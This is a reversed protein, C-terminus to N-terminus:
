PKSLRRYAHYHRLADTAQGLQECLGALNYHADAFDPDLEIATRYEDCAAGPGATDELALALNFHIVADGARRELASRYLKEAEAARGAEHVLRGLNVYADVLDQDHELARAYAGQAADPFEDELDLGRQFEVQALAAPASDGDASPRAHRVASVERALSDLDFGFLTQGTEPQWAAAGDHVAVDRGDAYIRLGSLTRGPSLEASLAALARRVRTTPVKADILGKAARLVVLDQFSFAYRRGSRNPRVFGSRVIGRIHPQPIGLIRSVEATSLNQSM